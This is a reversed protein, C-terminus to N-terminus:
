WKWLEKVENPTKYNKYAEFFDRPEVWPGFRNSPHSFFFDKVFNYDEDNLNSIFQNNKSTDLMGLYYFIQNFNQPRFLLDEYNLDDERLLGSHSLLEIIEMLHPYPVLNHKVHKWFPTDERDVMYHAQIFASLNICLRDFHDNMKNEFQDTGFRSLNRGLQISSLIGSTINTAELPEFFQSSLGIATVNKVTCKNLRGAEFKIIRNINQDESNDFTIVEVLEKLCDVDTAFDSSYVYGWGIRSQVPVKWMWGNDMARAGTYFDNFEKHTTRFPMALDLPLHNKHSLWQIDDFKRILLGKLGSCDVYYDYSYDQTECKLSSVGHEDLIVDRVTDEIIEIGREQLKSVLFNNLLETDLHMQNPLGIWENTKENIYFRLDKNNYFSHFDKVDSYLYRQLLHEKSYFNSLSESNINHCYYSDTWNSFKVGNKFTADCHIFFEQFPIQVLNCFDSWHETTGEGVGIIPINPSRMLTIKYSTLKQLILACALGATGGGVILINM